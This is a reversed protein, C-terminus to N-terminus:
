PPPSSPPPQEKDIPIVPFAHGPFQGGGAAERRMRTTSIFFHVFPVVFAALVFLVSLGLSLSWTTGLVQGGLMALYMLALPGVFLTLFLITTLRWSEASRMLGAELCFWRMAVCFAIIAALQALTFLTFLLTFPQGLSFMKLITVFISILAVLYVPRMLKHYRESVDIRALRQVGLAVLISALVDNLLDFNNIKFDIIWFLGGWFILRLPKIASRVDFESIM